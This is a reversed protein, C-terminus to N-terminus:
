DDMQERIIKLEERRRFRRALKKHYRRGKIGNYFDRDQCRRAAICEAYLLSRPKSDYGNMIASRRDFDVTQHLCGDVVEIAQKTLRERQAWDPIARKTRSM